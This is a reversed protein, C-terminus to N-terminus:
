TSWEAWICHYLINGLSYQGIRCWKLGASLQIKTLILGFRWPKSSEQPFGTWRDSLYYIYQFHITFSWLRHGLTVCLYYNKNSVFLMWFHGTCKIFCSLPFSKGWPMEWRDTHCHVLPVDRTLLATPLSPSSSSPIDGCRRPVAHVRCFRKSCVAERM